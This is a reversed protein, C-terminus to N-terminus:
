KTLLLVVVCLTYPTPDATESHCFFNGPGVVNQYKNQNIKVQEKFHILTDPM